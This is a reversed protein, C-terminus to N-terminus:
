NEFLLYKFGNEKLFSKILKSYFFHKKYYLINNISLIQYLNYKINYFIMDYNKKNKIIYFYLNIFNM